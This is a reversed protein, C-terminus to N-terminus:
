SDKRKLFGGLTGWLSGKEEEAKAPPAPARPTQPRPPASPGPSLAASPPPAPKPAAPASSTPLASPPKPALGPAKVSAAGATPASAAGATPSPNPRAPTAGSSARSGTAMLGGAPASPRAEKPAAPAAPMNPAVKAKTASIQDPLAEPDLRLAGIYARLDECNPHQYTKRVLDLAAPSGHRVLAQLVAHDGLLNRHINQFSGKFLGQSRKDLGLCQELFPVYRDGGASMLAHLLARILAPSLAHEEPHRLLSLLHIGLKPDRLRLLAKAAGLRLAEDKDDLRQLLVVQREALWGVPALEMALLAREPDGTDWLRALFRAGVEGELAQPPTRGIVERLVKSSLEPVHEVWLALANPEIEYLMGLLPAYGQGAQSKLIASVLTEPTPKAYRNLLYTLAEQRPGAPERVVLQALADTAAIEAWAERAMPGMPEPADLTAEIRAVMGGDDHKLQEEFLRGMVDKLQDPAIPCRPLSLVHKLLEHFQVFTHSHRGLDADWFQEPQDLKQDDMEQRLYRMSDVTVEVRRTEGWAERARDELTKPDAERNEEQARKEELSQFAGASGALQALAAAYDDQAQGRTQKILEDFGDVAEYKISRLDLIWLKDACDAEHQWRDSSEDFVSLFDVIEQTEARPQIMLARVGDRYLLDSFNNREPQYFVVLDHYKIGETTLELRIQKDRVKILRWAEELRDYMMQLLKNEPAYLRRGLSLRSMCKCLAEVLHPPPDIEKVVKPQADKKAAKDEPREGKPDGADDAQLKQDQPETM